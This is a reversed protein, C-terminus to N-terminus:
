PERQVHPHTSADRRHRVLDGGQLRGRRTSRTPVPDPTSATSSITNSGAPDPVRIRYM